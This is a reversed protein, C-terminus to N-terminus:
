RWDGLYDKNVEFMENCMTEIEELSLVAASLPDMSCARILKTKNKEMIADVALNEMLATANVIPAVEEPVNGAFCKRLGFRSVVMPIEVCANAPLNPICGENIVNGNFEFPKGDGFLANFINSGYEISRPANKDIDKALWKEIEEDFTRNRENYLDISYLPEGPNWEANDHDRCYKDILDPRKRFWAYYESNHGSSETVYYGLKLFLENRVLEKSYFDPNKLKERLMPYIDKGNLNVKAGKTVGELEKEGCGSFSVAVMLIALLFALKRLSKKM